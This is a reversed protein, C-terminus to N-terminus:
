SDASRKSSPLTSISKSKLGRTAFGAEVVTQLRHPAIGVNTLVNNSERLPLDTIIRFHLHPFSVQRSSM